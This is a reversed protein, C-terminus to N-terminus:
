FRSNTPAASSRVPDELKSKATRLAGVRTKDGSKMADKMLAAIYDRLSPTDAM